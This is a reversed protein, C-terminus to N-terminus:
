AIKLFDIHLHIYDEAVNARASSKIAWSTDYGWAQIKIDTEQSIVLVTSLDFRFTEASFDLNTCPCEFLTTTSTDDFIRCYIRGAAAGTTHGGTKYVGPQLTIVNSSLTINTGGVITTDITVDKWTSADTFQDGNSDSTKYEFVAYDSLGRAATDNGVMEGARWNFKYNASDTIDSLEVTFGSLTTSTVVYAYKAPDADTTNIITGVVDYTTDVYNTGFPITFESTADAINYQGSQGTGSAAADAYTDVYDKTALDADAVPTVGAVTSTFARTGDILAVNDIDVSGSTDFRVESDNWFPVYNDTPSDERTAVAQETGSIGIQFNDAAENFIFRYNTDSGRDVEIGAIGDPRTIGPGVEGYNVVLLNDEILVEEVEAFFTTGSVILDGYITAGADFIQRGTINRSGDTRAYQTHDDDALGLLSGHDITLGDLQGQLTGSTTDIKTDLTADQADSYATSAFGTHGASAYDLEGLESHDTTLTGTATVVRAEIKDASWLDTDATGNDDIERHITLTNAHADDQADVYGKTSLHADATPTVGGVTGLFPRTGSVLIYQTHDDDSLGNLYGHHSSQDVSEVSAAPDGNIDFTLYHEARESVPPLIMDTGTESIPVQLVRDYQENIQQEVQCRLDLADEHSESPFPDGSIYDTEQTIPVIRRIFVDQTNSPTILGFTINGGNDAGVGTLTYDSMLTETGDADVLYVELHDADFIKFNYAFVKQVGDGQYSIKSNTTSITM